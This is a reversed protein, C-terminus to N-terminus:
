DADGEQVARTARMQHLRAPGLRVPIRRPHRLLTRPKHTSPPPRCRTSRAACDPSKRSPMARLRRRFLDDDPEGSAAHRRCQALAADALARDIEFGRWALAALSAELRAAAALWDISDDVTPMTGVM